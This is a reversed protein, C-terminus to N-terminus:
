FESWSSGKDYSLKYFVNNKTATKVVAAARNGAGYQVLFCGTPAASLGLKPVFNAGTSSSFITSCDSITGLGSTVFKNSSELTMEDIASGLSNASCDAKYTRLTKNNADMKVCLTESRKNAENATRELYSAVSIGADKIRNNQVAGQLGAVGMSSLVGIIIVVVLVEVLTFGKVNAVNYKRNQRIM